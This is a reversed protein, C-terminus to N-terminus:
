YESNEVAQKSEKSPDIGNVRFKQIVAQRVYESTTAMDRAAAERIATTLLEPARLRLVSPFSTVRDSM